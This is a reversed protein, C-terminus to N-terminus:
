RYDISQEFLQKRATFYEGLNVCYVNEPRLEGFRAELLEDAHDADIAGLLQGTETQVIAYQMGEEFKGGRELVFENLIGIADRRLRLSTDQDLYIPQPNEAVVEDIHEVM